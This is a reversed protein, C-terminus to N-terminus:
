QIGGVIPAATPEETPTPSPSAASQIPTHSGPACGILALLLLAAISLTRPTPM